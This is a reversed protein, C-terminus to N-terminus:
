RWCRSGPWRGPAPWCTWRPPPTSGPRSLRLRESCSKKGLWSGTSRKWPIAERAKVLTAVRRQDDELQQTYHLAGLGTLAEIRRVGAAIGTESVIKFLGIDGSARVHTGGCLETSVEGVQVVRVREGYKEGFLATAGSKLAEATEMERANVQTNELVYTNVLDEVRRLEEATPAAFHSFDFRLRDPAVLSGAQKVHEGLVQRLASQLLHTATHNRATASRV